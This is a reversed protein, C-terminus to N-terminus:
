SAASAPSRLRSATGGSNLIRKMCPPPRASFAMTGSLRERAAPTSKTTVPLQLWFDCFSARLYAASTFMAAEPSALPQPDLLYINSVMTRAGNAVLMVPHSGIMARAPMAFFDGDPTAKDLPLPGKGWQVGSVKRATDWDGLSYDVSAPLLFRAFLQAVAAPHSPQAQAIVAAPIAVGLLALVASAFTRAHTTM